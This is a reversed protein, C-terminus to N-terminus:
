REKDKKKNISKSNKTTNAIFKFLIGIFAVIIHWFRLKFKFFIDYEAKDSVFDPSINISKIKLKFSNDLVALLNYISASIGGYAVATEDANERTVSMHFRVIKVRMHKLMKIAKPASNKIADIIFSVTEFFSNENSKETSIKKQSEQSKKKKPKKIDKADKSDADEVEEEQTLVIHKRYGFAGVYIKVNEKIYVYFTLSYSLLITFFAIISLIIWLALM